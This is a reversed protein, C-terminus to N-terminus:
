NSKTGIYQIELSSTTSTPSTPTPSPSIEIVIQGGDVENAGDNDNGADAIDGVPPKVAQAEKMPSDPFKRWTKPGHSPPYTSQGIPM